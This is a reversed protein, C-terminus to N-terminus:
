PARCCPDNKSAVHRYNHPTGRSMRVERARRVSTIFPDSDVEEGGLLLRNRDGYAREFEQLSTLVELPEFLPGYRTPGVFGTTTTSM